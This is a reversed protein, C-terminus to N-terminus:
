NILSFTLVTNM